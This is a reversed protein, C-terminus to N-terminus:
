GRWVRGSVNEKAEVYCRCAIHAPTTIVGSQFEENIPIWGEGENGSCLPCTREDGVTIWRHQTAGNRVFVEHNFQGIMNVLETESIMEDRTGIVEDMADKINEAIAQASLNDVLGANVMDSLWNMTTDDVQLGLFEARDQIISISEKSVPSFAINSAGMKTLGDSGGVTAAWTLFGLIAKEGGEISDNFSIFYLAIALVLDRKEVKEVKDIIKKITEPKTFISIQSNLAKTVAKRFDKYQKRGISDDVAINVRKQKYFFNNVEQYIRRLKVKSLIQSEEM